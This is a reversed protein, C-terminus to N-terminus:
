DPSDDGQQQAYHRAESEVFEVLAAITPDAPVDPSVALLRAAQVTWEPWALDVRALHGHAVDGLTVVPDHTEPLAHTSRDVRIAPSHDPLPAAGPAITLTIGRRTLPRARNWVVVAMVMNAALLRLSPPPIPVKEPGGILVADYGMGDLVLFPARGQTARCVWSELSCTDGLDLLLVLGGSTRRESQILTFLHPLLALDGRLNATYLLTVTSVETL